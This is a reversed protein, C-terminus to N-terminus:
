AKILEVIKKISVNQGYMLIATKFVRGALKIILYDVLVLMGMTGIIEWKSPTSVGLRLMMTVPTFFPFYTLFKVVAGEGGQILLQSFYLPIIPILNILGGAQNSSKDDKTVSGVLAYLGALLIYGLVFYVGIYLTKLELLSSLSIDLFFQGAILGASLWIVIQIIGLSAYGLIKGLMLEKALISSLTIEVIREKKEQVISQYLMGGSIMTALIMLFALGFPLMYNIFGQKEQLSRTIIEPKKTLSLVQESDYGRSQLRKRALLPTLIKEFSDINLDSLDKFYFLVQNKQLSDPPFVLVGKLERNEITQKLENEEQTQLFTVQYGAGSLQQKIDSKLDGTRDVVGVPVQGPDAENQAAFYGGLGAIAVIVLPFIFAMGLFLKSKINRKIEWGAVKLSDKM